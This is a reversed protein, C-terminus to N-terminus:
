DNEKEYGFRKPNEVIIRAVSEAQDRTMEIKLLLEFIRKENGNKAAQVFEGFLGARILRDNTTLDDYQDM